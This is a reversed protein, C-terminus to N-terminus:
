EASIQRGSESSCKGSSTKGTSCICGDAEPTVNAVKALKSLIAFMLVFPAQKTIREPYTLGFTSRNPKSLSLIMEVVMVTFSIMWFQSSIRATVNTFIDISESSNKEM